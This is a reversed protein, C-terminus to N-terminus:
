KGATKAGAAEARVFARLARNVAKSTKFREALDPELVVINSGSAFRKVYKGRIGGSFDYEARMEDKPEAKKM